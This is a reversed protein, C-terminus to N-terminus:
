RYKGPQNPAHGAGLFALLALGTAATDSVAHVDQPCGPQQRCENSTDLSWGGDDRQHRSLWNLGETVARESAPTGGERRLIQARVAESRGSFPATMDEAHMRVSRMLDGIAPESREASRDPLSVKPAYSAGALRPQASATSSSAELALSPPAETETTAFPDGARDATTLSRLDEDALSIIASDFPVDRDPRAEAIFFCTALIVLAVGHLLLSTGWAPLGGIWAPARRDFRALTRRVRVRIARRWRAQDRRFSM